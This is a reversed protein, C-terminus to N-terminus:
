RPTSPLAPRPPPAVEARWKAAEAPQGWQEYLDALRRRAAALKKAPGAALHAQRALLHPEAEAFRGLRLLCDGLGGRDEALLPDPPAAAARARCVAEYQPLADAPRGATLYASGLNITANLTLPHNAGLKDHHGRVAAEIVAVAEAPRGSEEYGMGLHVMRNLTNPHDPGFKERFWRLSEECLPVADAARGATRYAHALHILLNVTERHGAGPQVRLQRLGAEMLPLAEAPRGADAYANALDRMALSTRHHAPGLADRRRRVYEEFLPVAEAPRGAQRHAEALNGLTNVAEPHDPGAAARRLKLCEALLPVAQDARGCGTYDIGLRNMLTLTDPHAPGDAARRRRLCEEFLPLADALRNALRYASALQHMLRTTQRHDPGVAERSVRLGEELVPVAREPRETEVHARGLREVVALTDPDAPGFAERRLRLSEEFLTVAEAPRGAMKVAEALRDLAILTVPDAAGVRGRRSDHAARFQDAAQAYEGVGKYADGLALRVAERTAPRDAFREGVKGAARDLATRVTLNPDPKFAAGAQADASAQRLLDTLLFQTIADAEDAKEEARRRQEAEADRAATARVAQVGAAAAGGAVALVTAASLAAVARNRRGWRVAKALRGTPRARVPEGRAVRGLDAALDAATAYRRGPEKHLCKLCVTELDVPVGANLRRPPVPDDALVQAFVAATPGVFPPRGTLCEYLTAGLGYVDTRADPAHGSAQEPAMYGPTGVAVDTETLGGPGDLRRAVGFDTLKPVDAGDLLVNAPKLDRHVVGLAHAAQVADAVKALLGAARKPDLPGARLADHLSHGDVFELALFPRGAHEGFEFVRVANPHSLGALAHAELRFRALTEPHDERLLKVAVQRNLDRDHALYVVGMGGRGLEREVRFRGVAWGAPPPTDAPPALLPTIPRGLRATAADGM